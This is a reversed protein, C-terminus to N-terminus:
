PILDEELWVPQTFAGNVAIDWVELRVWKQGKFNQTLSLTRQGFERTDSLDIRERRVMEGDGSIVYAFALPFTWELDVEIVVAGNPSLKLSEGSQRGGVTFNPILIEGTTVFFSGQRLVNLIPEWGEDFKPLKGLRLYNINMPGYLEYDPEIRFVDVEGVVYKKQGWNATDDMLDLVRWGLRSRSLDAPMSKWAAGFFTDSLYFDKERYADPYGTSGKIRAHATWNLGHEQRFLRLVDEANGVHYVTGLGPREESFPTSQDRNLVWYVPKPFFSIWHGGLHVNPEEGPLLLFGDTSLRECESHMRQLQALREETKLRPTRGNHFEALHVVDVGMRKFKKVFGPQELGAPIGDVSQEKQRRLFDLTHEVHYHSSFTKYGPVTKFGDGHTYRRVEDIAAGAEGSSLLYFIGLRQKSGPPANFWPVYRKDGDLPQRIGLGLGSVADRYNEGHWVFKFNNAFDLPYFYQHPPPFLAVSGGDSEAVITRHRVAVPQASTRRASDSTELQDNTNLWATRKWSPDTGALGSDYLIARANEQTSLVTEIHILPSGAYVTFQLEGSFSAASANDLTITARGGNNAVRANLPSLAVPYQEYPRKHVKDFFITWGKRKDMDRTGVTLVTVPDLNELVTRVASDKNESIGIRIILPGEGTTNLELVGVEGDRMPWRLTLRGSTERAVIGDTASFGSQDVTVAAPSQLQGVLLGLGVISVFGFRRLLQEM